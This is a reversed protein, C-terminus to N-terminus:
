YTCTKMLEKAEFDGRLGHAILGFLHSQQSPVHMSRLALETGKLRM